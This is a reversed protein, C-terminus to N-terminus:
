PVSLRFQNVDIFHDLFFSKLSKARARATNIEGRDIGLESALLDVGAKDLVYIIEANGVM